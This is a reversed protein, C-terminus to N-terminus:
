SRRSPYHRPWGDMSRKLCAGRHISSQFVCPLVLFFFLTERPSTRERAHNVSECAFSPWSLSAAWISSRALYVFLCLPACGNLSKIFALSLAPPQRRARLHNLHCNLPNDYSDSSLEFCPVESGINESLPFPLWTYTCTRFPFAVAEPTQVPSSIM